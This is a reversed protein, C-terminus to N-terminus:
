QAAGEGFVVQTLRADDGRGWNGYISRSHFLTSPFVALRNFQAEVTRRLTWGATTRGEDSREHPESSEIAQTETHTWFATGDGAPPTPNLYLIASWKGMDADTHIFHPEVQGAPSKRFFSLTPYAFPFMERIRMTVPGDLPLTAIGHFVCHEFHFSQFSMDLAAERYAEPNPLFNDFVRIDSM